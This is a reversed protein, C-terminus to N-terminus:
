NREEKREEEGECLILERAVTRRNGKGKMEQV